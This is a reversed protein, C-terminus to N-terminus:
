PCFTYKTQFLLLIVRQAINSIRLKNIKLLNVECNKNDIEIKQTFEM